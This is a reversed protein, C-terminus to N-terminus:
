KQQAAQARGKWMGGKGRAHQLASDLTYWGYVAGIFPLMLGWFPTRHYFRLIPQFSAAMLAWSIAGCLAALGGLWRGFFLDVVPLLYVIFLGILTGTLLLPSYKLQAYATRSIMAHIDAMKPYPRMSVARNTLGLWIPGQQKMLKGMACDDIIESRIAEVGGAQELAKRRILMCGGAAGAMPNRPDNVAGFPYLKAFFYVFAPILFKEALSTCNLRAMLSTLVLGGDEARSVLARLNDPSHEIDADTFWLYDPASWTTAATVGQSLAFLKGTWGAPHKAGSVIDIRSDNLARAIDATGDTSQDDVLIIRFPGPYDQAALSKLTRVITEAEDRAPVIAAVSPWHAPRQPEQMDDRDRFLWFAHRGFVLVLWIALPLFSLILTVIM